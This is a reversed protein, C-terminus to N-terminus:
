EDVLTGAHDADRQRARADRYARRFVSLLPERSEPRGPPLAGAVHEDAFRWEADVVPGDDDDALARREPPRELSRRLEDALQGAFADGSGAVIWLPVAVTGGIAVAGVSAGGVAATALAAAGVGLRASWTRDNWALDAVMSGTTRLVPGLVAGADDVRLAQLAKRLASGRGARLELLREAWALLARRDAEPLRLAAGIVAAEAPDARRVVKTTAEDM